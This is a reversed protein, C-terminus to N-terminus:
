QFNKSLSLTVDVVEKDDPYKTYLMSMLDPKEQGTANNSGDKIETKRHTFEVQKSYNM